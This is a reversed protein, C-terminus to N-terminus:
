HDQTICTFTSLKNVASVHFSSTRVQMCVFRNRSAVLSNLQSLEEAGWETSPQIALQLEQGGLQVSSCAISALYEACEDVEECARAAISWVATETMLSDAAAAPKLDM